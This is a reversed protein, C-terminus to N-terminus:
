ILKDLPRIKEKAGTKLLIEVAIDLNFEVGDDSSNNFFVSLSKTNRLYDVRLMVSMNRIIFEKRVWSQLIQMM